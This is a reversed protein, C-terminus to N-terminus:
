GRVRVAMRSNLESAEAAVVVKRRHGREKEM